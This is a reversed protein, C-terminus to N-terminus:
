IPFYFNSDKIDAPLESVIFPWLPAHLQSEWAKLDNLLENLKEQNSASLDHKEELDDAINYLLSTNARENIYLKWDGKRVAKSYGSRWFLVPHPATNNAGNVYPLINVGDYTIGAPLKADAVRVSTAFIDLNSVPKDYVTGETIVGPYRVILPVRIGGEFDSQKGGRLPANTMQGSYSAGGNDSGFFIITNKDLGEEKLKAMIKGVADDLSKLIALYIRETTDTATTIKDFESRKAQFPDHVATFPLYLFFPKSKNKDIFGIAEETFKDTIYEKENVVVGNRVIDISGHRVTDESNMTHYYYSKSLILPDKMSAYISGWTLTGYYYDFGRKWPQLGESEGAHWKGIAGTTYGQQKMLQSILIESTPIGKQLQKYLATDVKDFTTGRAKREQSIKEQLPANLVPPHLEPVLFEAGFRQQYRGTLLGMRSPSCIPATAYAQTFRVGQAALADINPTKIKTNGYCSLQNWGLDDAYIVIINPKVTQQATVNVLVAM